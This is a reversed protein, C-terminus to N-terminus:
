ADGKQEHFCLWSCLSLDALREDVGGVLFIRGCVPCTDVEFKPVDYGNEEYERVIDCIDREM